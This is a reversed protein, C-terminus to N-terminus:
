FLLPKFLVCMDEEYLLRCSPGGSGTHLSQEKLDKLSGCRCEGPTEGDYECHFCYSPLLYLSPLVNKGKLVHSLNAYMTEM